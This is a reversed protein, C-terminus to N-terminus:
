SVIEYAHDSLVENAAISTANVQKVFDTIDELTMCDKPLIIVEHISSPIVYYGNPYKQRFEDRMAIASVAGFRYEKNTIVDFIEDFRHDHIAEEKAKILGINVLDDATCDDDWYSLLVQRVQTTLVNNDQKGVKIYPVLILDDFGFKEASVFVDAKFTKPLLRVELNKSVYNWDKLNATVENVDLGGCDKYEKYVKIVNDATEEVSFKKEFFVDIYIIPAINAENLKISIGARGQKEMLVVDYDNGLKEIVAGKVKEAFEKM